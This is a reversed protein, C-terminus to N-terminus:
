ILPQKTNFVSIDPACNEMNPYIKAKTDSAYRKPQAEFKAIRPALLGRPM